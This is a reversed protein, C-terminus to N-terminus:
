WRGAFHSSSKQPSLWPHRSPKIGEEPRSSSSPPVAQAALFSISPLSARTAPHGFDLQSLVLTIPIGLESPYSAKTDATRPLPSGKKHGRHPQLPWKFWDPYRTYVVCLEVVTLGHPRPPALVTASSSPRTADRRQVTTVSVFILDLSRFFQGHHLSSHSSSLTCCEVNTITVLLLKAFADTSGPNVEKGTGSSKSTILVSWSRILSPHIKRSGQSSM